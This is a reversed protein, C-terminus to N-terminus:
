WVKHISPHIYWAPNCFHPATGTKTHFSTRCNGYEKLHAEELQYLMANPAPRWGTLDVIKDQVDKYLLRQGSKEAMCGNFEREM